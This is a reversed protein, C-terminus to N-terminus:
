SQVLLKHQQQGKETEWTLISNTAIKTQPACERLVIINRKRGVNHEM